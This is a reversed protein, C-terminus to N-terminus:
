KVEEADTIWDPSAKRRKLETENLEAQVNAKQERKDRAKQVDENAKSLLESLAGSFNDREQKRTDDVLRDAVGKFFIIGCIILIIIQWGEM